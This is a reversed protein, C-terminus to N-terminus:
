KMRFSRTGNMVEKQKSRAHDHLLNAAHRGFLQAGVLDHNLVVQVGVVEVAQSKLGKFRNASVSGVDDLEDLEASHVENSTVDMWIGM